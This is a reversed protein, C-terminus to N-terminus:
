AKGLVASVIAERVRGRLVRTRRLSRRRNGNKTSMLHGSNRPKYMVKGTATIRIRKRLGKHAKRKVAGM